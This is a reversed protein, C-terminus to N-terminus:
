FAMYCNPSVNTLYMHPLKLSNNHYNTQQVHCELATKQISNKMKCLNLTLSKTSIVDQSLHVVRSYAKWFLCALLGVLHHHFKLSNATSIFEKKFNDPALFSSWRLVFNTILNPSLPHHILKLIYWMLIVHFRSINSTKSM